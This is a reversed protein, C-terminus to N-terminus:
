LGDNRQVKLRSMFGTMDLKCYKHCGRM